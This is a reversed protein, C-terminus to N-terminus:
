YYINFAINYVNLIYLLLIFNTINNNGNFKLKGKIM